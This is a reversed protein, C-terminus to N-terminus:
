PQCIETTSSFDGGGEAWPVVAWRSGPGNIRSTELDSVIVSWLGCSEEPCPIPGDNPGIDLLVLCIDM